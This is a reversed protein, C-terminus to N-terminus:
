AVRAGLPATAAAASRRARRRPSPPQFRPDAAALTPRLRSPHTPPLSHQIHTHTPLTPQSTHLPPHPPPPTSTATPLPASRSTGATRGRRTPRAPCPAPALCPRASASVSQPLRPVWQVAQTRPTGSGPTWSCKRLTAFILTTKRRPPSPPPAPPRGACPRRPRTQAAVRRGTSGRLRRSSSPSPRSPRARLRQPARPRLRCTGSTAVAPTLACSGRARARTERRKSSARHCLSARRRPSRRTPPPPLPLSRRHSHTRAARPTNPSPTTGARASRRTIASPPGM